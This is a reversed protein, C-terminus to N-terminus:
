QYPMGSQMWNWDVSNRMTQQGWVYQQYTNFQQKQVPWATQGGINLWKHIESHGDAFSFSCAGNHYSAPLERWYESALAAGPDFMFVADDIPDAHEDLTVWIQSPGPKNLDNMKQAGHGVGFGSGKGFYVPDQPQPFNGVVTPGSSNGLVGNMAVSRVRPGVPGDVNDGPCKYVGPSKIYNAMLSQTPDILAQSNTNVSASTWDLFKGDYVWHTSGTGNAILLDNYEGAYQIWGLMLQRCNGLCAIGQAKKKSASLAPLLMAALIAIIAIVVLLEILTFGTKRALARPSTSSVNNLRM